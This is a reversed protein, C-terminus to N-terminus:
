PLPTAIVSQMRQLDKSNPNPTLYLQVEGTRPDLWTWHEV